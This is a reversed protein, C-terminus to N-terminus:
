AGVESDKTARCHFEAGDATDGGASELDIGAVGDGARHFVTGDGDGGNDIVPDDGLDCRRLIQGLEGERSGDGSAACELSDAVEVDVAVDGIEGGNVDAGAGM